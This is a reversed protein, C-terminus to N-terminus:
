YKLRLGGPSFRPDPATLTAPPREDRPRLPTLLLLSGLLELSAAAAAPPSPLRPAAANQSLGGGGGSPIRPKWSWNANAGM